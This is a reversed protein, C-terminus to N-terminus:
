LWSSESAQPSLVKRPHLISITRSKWIYLKSLLKGYPYIQPSPTLCIVDDFLLSVVHISIACFFVVLQM